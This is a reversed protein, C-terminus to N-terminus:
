RDSLWPRDLVAFSSGAVEALASSGETELKVTTARYYYKTLPQDSPDIPGISMSGPQWVFLSLWM